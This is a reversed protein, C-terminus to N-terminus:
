IGPLIVETAWRVTSHYVNQTLRDHNQEHTNFIRIKANQVRSTYAFGGDGTQAILAPYCLPNSALEGRYDLPYRNQAAVRDPDFMYLTAENQESLISAIRKTISSDEGIIHLIVQGRAWQGGGLQYGAYAKDVVEVAVIPLQLRTDALENWIGSNSLFNPDDVRFSRTQGEQFWPVAAAPIVSVWKHSYALQVTSTTAIETDFVVQGNIYNIYYGSGRPIFTNNVFIGSISIPQESTRSLGSQWVWNQRYAEWVQGNNYRPDVVSRLRHRDGGYAGSSPLTINFFAGLELFGWDIYAVLNDEIAETMSVKGISSNGKFYTTAM